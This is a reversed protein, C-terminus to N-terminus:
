NQFLVGQTMESLGLMATFNAGFGFRRLEEFASTSKGVVAMDQQAADLRVIITKVYMMDHTSNM